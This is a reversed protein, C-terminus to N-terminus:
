RNNEYPTNAELQKLFWLIGNELANDKTGNPLVTKLLHTNYQHIKFIKCLWEMGDECWYPEPQLHINHKTLLWDCVHALSPAPITNKRDFDHYHSFHYPQKNGIVYFMDGSWDYGCKHLHEAVEYSVRTGEM